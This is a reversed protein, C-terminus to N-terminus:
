KVCPYRSPIEFGMHDFRLESVIQSWCLQRGGTDKTRETGPVKMWRTVEDLGSVRFDDKLM